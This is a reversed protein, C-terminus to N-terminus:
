TLLYPIFISHSFNLKLNCKFINNWINLTWLIAPSYMYPLSLMTALQYAMAYVVTLTCM